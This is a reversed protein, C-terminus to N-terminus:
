FFAIEQVALVYRKRNQSSRANAPKSPQLVDKVPDDECDSAARGYRANKPPLDIRDDRYKVSAEVKSASKGCIQGTPRVYDYNM